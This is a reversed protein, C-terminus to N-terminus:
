KKRALEYVTGAVGGIAAGVAAGKGGKALAGIGAGAGAAGGIVLASDKWDRDDKEVTANPDINEATNRSPAVVVPAPAPAPASVYIPAPTAIDYRLREVERAPELQGETAVCKVALSTQGNLVTPAFVAERGEGCDVAPLNAVLSADSKDKDEASTRDFVGGVVLGLAFVGVIWGAVAKM